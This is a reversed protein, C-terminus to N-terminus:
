FWDADNGIFCFLDSCCVGHAFFKCIFPAQHMWYGVFVHHLSMSQEEFLLVEIETYSCFM